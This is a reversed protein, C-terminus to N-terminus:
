AQFNKERSYKQYDMLIVLPGRLNSETYNLTLITTYSINYEM